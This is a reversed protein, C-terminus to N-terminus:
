SGVGAALALLAPVILWALGKLLFFWFAGQGLLRLLRGGALAPPHGGLDPSATARSVTSAASSTSTSSRSSTAASRM